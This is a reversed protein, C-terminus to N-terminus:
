STRKVVVTDFSFDHKGFADNTSGSLSLEIESENKVISFSNIVTSDGNLKAFGSTPAFCDTTVDEAMEIDTGNLRFTRCVNGETSLETPTDVTLRKAERTTKGILEMIMRADENSTQISEQRARSLVTSFLLKVSIVSIVGIISAAILLEILTFGRSKALKQITTIKKNM